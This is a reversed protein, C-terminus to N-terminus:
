RAKKPRPISSADAVARPRAPVSPARHSARLHLPEARVAALAAQVRDASVAQARHAASAPDRALAQVHAQPVRAEPDPLAAAPYQAHPTSPAHDAQSSGRPVRRASLIAARDVQRAPVVPPVAISYPAAV